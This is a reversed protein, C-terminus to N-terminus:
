HRKVRFTTMAHRGHFAGTATVTKTGALRGVHIVTRYVGDAAAHANAPSIREGRYAVRVPEGAALGTVTVWQRHRKHMVQKALQLGLTKAVVVQITTAGTRDRESGTVTVPTANEGTSAPVTVTRSLAGTATAQGTAVQIGGITITYPENAELGGTTVVVGKGALHLGGPVTVALQQAPRAVSVVVQSTTTGNANSASLVYTNDGLTSPAMDATGASPKSGTWAGSAAVTDADTTSWDLSTTEGRRISSHPTTLSLDPALETAVDATPDSTASADDYGAKTVTVQVTMVTHRQASALVYTPDTAGAIPNGDSYWQYGLQDPAPSVTGPDAALAQGVKVTGTITAAPASAFTAKAVAATVQSQTTAEFHDRTASAKVTLVQGVDAAGPTYTSTSDGIPTAGRLWQWTVTADAPNLGDPLTASLTGDVVATGTIVPTPLAIQGGDVPGVAESTVPSADSYGDETAGVQFAISHGADDNTLTYTTTTAGPVAAGDRLWQYSKTAAQPTATVTSDDGTLADGVQPTGSGVSTIAPTGTVIPPGTLPGATISGATVHRTPFCNMCEWSQTSLPAVDGQSAGSLDGVVLRVYRNAGPAYAYYDGGPGFSGLSSNSTTYTMSTGFSGTNGGSTTLNVATIVGSDSLDFTGTMQGGDDFTVGSLTWTRTSSASATGTTGILVSITLALLMSAALVRRGLARLFVTPPTM